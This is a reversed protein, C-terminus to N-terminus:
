LVTPKSSTHNSLTQSWIVQYIMLVTLLLVYQSKSRRITYLGFLHPSLNSYLLSVYLIDPLSKLAVMEGNCSGLNRCDEGDIGVCKDENDCDKIVVLVIQKCGNDVMIIDGPFIELKMMTTESLTVITSGSGHPQISNQEAEVQYTM